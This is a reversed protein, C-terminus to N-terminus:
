LKTFRSWNSHYTINKECISGVVVHQLEILNTRQGESLGMKPGNQASLHRCDTSFPGFIPNGPYTTPSPLDSFIKHTVM